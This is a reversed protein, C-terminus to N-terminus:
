NRFGQTLSSHLRQGLAMSRIRPQRYHYPQGNREVVFAANETQWVLDVYQVGERTELVCGRSLIQELSIRPEAVNELINQPIRVVQTGQAPMQVNATFDAPIIDSPSRQHAHSVAVTRSPAQQAQRRHITTNGGHLQDPSDQVTNARGNGSAAQMSSVISPRRPQQQQQQSTADTDCEFRGRLLKGREASNPAQAPRRSHPTNQEAARDANREEKAHVSTTANGSLRNLNENTKRLSHDDKRRKMGAYGFDDDVGKGLTMSPHPLRKDNQVGTRPSLKMLDPFAAIGLDGYGKPQAQTSSNSHSPPHVGSPALSSESPSRQENRRRPKPARYNLAKNITQQETAAFRSKSSQSQSQSDIEIPASNSNSSVPRGNVAHVGNVERVDDDDDSLEVPDNQNSPNPAGTTKRRKSPSPSFGDGVDNDLAAGRAMARTSKPAVTPKAFPPKYVPYSKGVRGPQNAHINNLARHQYSSGPKSRLHNTQSKKAEAPPEKNMMDDQGPVSIKQADKPMKDNYHGALRGEDEGYIKQKKNTPSKQESSDRV